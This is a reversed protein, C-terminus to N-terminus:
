TLYFSTRNELLRKIESEFQELDHSKPAYVSKYVEILLTPELSEPLPNDFDNLRKELENFFHIDLPVSVSKMLLEPFGTKHYGQPEFVWELNNTMENWYAFSQFLSGVPLNKTSVWQSFKNSNATINELPLSDLGKIKGAEFGISSYFIGRYEQSGHRIYLLENSQQKLGRSDKPDVIPGYEIDEINLVTIKSYDVSKNSPIDIPLKDSKSKLCIIKRTSTSFHKALWVTSLSAGLSIIDLDPVLNKPLKYIEFNPRQVMGQISHKKPIRYWSYFHTSIPKEIVLPGDNTAVSITITDKSINEITPIGYYIPVQYVTELIEVVKERLKQYQYWKIFEHEEYEAYLPKFLERAIRPLGYITQGWHESYYDANIEDLWFPPYIITVDPHSEVGHKKLGHLTAFLATNNGIVIEPRPSVFKHLERLLIPKNYRTCNLHRFLKM